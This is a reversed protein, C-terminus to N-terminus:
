MLVELWVDECDGVLLEVDECDCEVSGWFIGREMGEFCCGCVNM